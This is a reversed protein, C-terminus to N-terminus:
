EQIVGVGFHDSALGILEKAYALKKKKVEPDAGAKEVPADFDFGKLIVEKAGLAMALFVARDGDTFGGFNHLGGMKQVQTTGIIPGLFGPVVDRMREINDGHAHIIVAVGQENLDSLVEIDGDLDTVIIDPRLGSELMNQLGSGAAIKVTEEHIQPEDLKAPGYVEVIRGSIQDTLTSIPLIDLHGLFSSLVESAKRDEM